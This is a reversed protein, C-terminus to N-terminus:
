FNWWKEKDQWSFLVTSQKPKRLGESTETKIKIIDINM